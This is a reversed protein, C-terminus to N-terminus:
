NSWFTQFGYVFESQDTLTKPIVFDAFFDCIAERDIVAPASPQSATATEDLLGKLSPRAATAAGLPTGAETM